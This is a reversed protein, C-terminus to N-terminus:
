LNKVDGLIQGLVEPWSVAVADPRIESKQAKDSGANQSSASDAKLLITRCGAKQGASIDSIKDGIMWSSSLDIALEKAARLLMQPSPKRCTCGDSPAHPCYYAGDVEVGSEALCSIFQQHVLLAREETVLGRGIGSQNSVIALLFGQKKLTALADAAGPILQVLEPDKPYGVDYIVTGDRDLFVARKQTETM